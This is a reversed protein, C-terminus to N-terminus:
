RAKKAKTLGANRRRHDIESQVRLDTADDGFKDVITSEEISEEAAGEILMHTASCESWARGSSM